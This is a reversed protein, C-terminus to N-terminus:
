RPRRQKGLVIRKKKAHDNKELCLMIAVGSPRRKRKWDSLRAWLVSVLDPGRCRVIAEEKEVLTNGTALPAAEIRGMAAPQARESGGAKEV